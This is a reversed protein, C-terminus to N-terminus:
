RKRIRAYFSKASSAFSRVPCSSIFEVRRRFRHPVFRPASADSHDPEFVVTQRQSNRGPAIEAFHFRNDDHGARRHAKEFNSVALQELEAFAPEDSIRKSDARVTKAKRSDHRPQALVVISARVARARSGDPRHNRSRRACAFRLGPAHNQIKRQLCRPAPPITAPTRSGPTCSCGSTATTNKAHTIAPSFASSKLKDQSTRSPIEICQGSCADFRWGHYSCESPKGTSAATPSRFEAIRVRIACRSHKATPLAASCSRFKSSCRPPWIEGSSKPAACAPYWFDWLFGLDKARRNPKEPANM